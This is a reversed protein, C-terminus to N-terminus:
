STGVGLRTELRRSALSMGYSFILYFVGAFLYIERQLGIFERQATISQSIALLDLLGVIAVLSTDQFISVFQSMIAPIVARLAQPLVVLGTVYAEGLGVARAAEVQGQPVAQLGGRVVEALYAATFLTMGAMARVVRDITLELPLFLPLMTQAMFLISILPVGRVLEIFGVCGWKVVPLKSQRGLALLVGIPFSAVISVISLVLTLLIGSWIDPRVIELVPKPDYLEIGIEFSTLLVITVIAGVVWIAILYRSFNISGSLSRGISRGLLLGVVAAVLIMVLRPVQGGFIFDGPLLGLQFVVGLIGLLALSSLIRSIRRRDVRHVMWTFSVLAAVLLAAAPARWAEGLPMLTPSVTYYGINNSITTLTPLSFGGLLIMLTPFSLLWGVVVWTRFRGAPRRWAIPTLIGLVVFIGFGVAARWVEEDPYRGWVLVTINRTIVEWKAANFAWILASRGAAVLVGVTAVTLVANSWSGFLNERIWGIPGVTLPPPPEYPLSATFESSAM